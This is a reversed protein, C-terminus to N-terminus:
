SGRKGTIAVVDVARQTGASQVVKVRFQYTIWRQIPIWVQTPVQVGGFTNADDNSQQLLSADDWDAEWRITFIDGAASNELGFWLGEVWFPVTATLELDSLTHITGVTCTQTTPIMAIDPIANQDDRVAQITEAGGRMAIAEYLVPHVLQVRDGVELAVSFANHTIVGADTYDTMQRWEGEPAADDAQIVYVWWGPMSDIGRGVLHTSTFTNGAVASIQGWSCLNSWMRMLFGMEANYVLGYINTTDIKVDSLKNWIPSLGYTPSGLYSEEITLAIAKINDVLADVIRLENVLQKQYAMGSITSEANGEHAVEDRTGILVGLRTWLSDLDTHISSDLDVSLTNNGDINLVNAMKGLVPHVLQVTDGVAAPSTFAAITCAGTTSVYDSVPTLENQPAASAGGADRVVFMFWNKFFDNGFGTLSAVTVSTTGSIATVKGQYFLGQGKKILSADSIEWNQEM